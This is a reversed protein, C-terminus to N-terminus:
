IATEVKCSGPVPFFFLYSFLVDMGSGQNGLLAM